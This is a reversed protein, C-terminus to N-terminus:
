IVRRCERELVYQALVSWLTIFVPFLLPVNLPEAWLASVGCSVLAVPLKWKIDRFGQRALYPWSSVHPITTALRKEATFRLGILEELQEYADRSMTHRADLHKNWRQQDREDLMYRYLHRLKKMEGLTFDYLAYVEQETRRNAEDLHFVKERFIRFPSLDVWVMDLSLLVFVCTSWLVSEPADDVCKALHRWLMLIQRSKLSDFWNSDCGMMYMRNYAKELYMFTNKWPTCDM